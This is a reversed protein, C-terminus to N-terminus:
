ARRTGIIIAACGCTHYHTKVDLGHARMEKEYEKMWENTRIMKPLDSFAYKWEPIFNGAFNLMKFYFNWLAQVTKNEPYAFDHLVIKGGPSLMKLSRKILIKPDCYKPVYSSVICDFESDLAPKEADQCYFKINKYSSSNKRAMVLYSPTVDIGIIKAAPFKQAIKRTLIGTGCGLDLFARGDSICDLIKRKWYNDRGLTTWAVITDYTQATNDFFRSVLQDRM